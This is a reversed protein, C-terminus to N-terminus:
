TNQSGSAAAANDKVEPGVEGQPKTAPPRRTRRRHGGSSRVKFLSLGEDIAAATERLCPLLTGVHSETLQGSIGVALAPSNELAVALTWESGRTPVFAYGRQRTADLTTLLDKVSEFPLTPHSHFRRVIEEEPLRALMAIGVGSQTAPWLEHGGLAKHWSEHGSAHYLYSVSREWLVGFAVMKRLSHRLQELHPLAREGFGTAHLSQAAIVLIGPGVGYKRKETQIVMGLHALTRLLRHVRTTEMGLEQAIQSVGTPKEQIVVHQLCRFGDIVSQNPQRPLM